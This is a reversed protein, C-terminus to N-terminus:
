LTPLPLQEDSEPTSEQETSSLAFTLTKLDIERLAELQGLSKMQNRRLVFPRRNIEYIEQWVTDFDETQMNEWNIDDSFFKFFRKVNEAHETSTTFLDILVIWMNTKIIDDNIESDKYTVALIEVMNTFMSMGDQWEELFLRHVNIKTGNVLEVEKCDKLLSAM